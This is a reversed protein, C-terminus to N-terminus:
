KEVFEEYVLAELDGSEFILNNNEDYLKFLEQMGNGINASGDLGLLFTYFAENLIENLIENCILQQQKDLKLEQIKQYIYSNNDSIYTDLLDNKEIKWQKVFTKADM